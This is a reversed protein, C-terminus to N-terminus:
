LTVAKYNKEKTKKKMKQHSGDTMMISENLQLQSLVLACLSESELPAFIQLLAETLQTVPTM